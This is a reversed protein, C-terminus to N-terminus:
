RELPLKPTAEWAMILSHITHRLRGMFDEPKIGYVKYNVWDFGTDATLTVEYSWGWDSRFPVYEYIVIQIGPKDDNTRCVDKSDFRKWYFSRDNSELQWRWGGVTLADHLPGKAGNTM